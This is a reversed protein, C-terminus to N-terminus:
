ASVRPGRVCKQDDSGANTDHNHDDDGDDVDDLLSLLMSAMMQSGAM